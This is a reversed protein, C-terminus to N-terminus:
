EQIRVHRGRRSRGRKGTLFATCDLDAAAAVESAGVIAIFSLAVIRARM